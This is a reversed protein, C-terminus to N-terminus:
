KSILSDYFSHYDVPILKKLEQLHGFKSAEIPCPGKYLASHELLVDVRKPRAPLPKWEDQFTVKYNIVGEPVYQYAVVDNVCPDGVKNGPRISNYFPTDFKMFDGFQCYVTEYPRPHRRAAHIIPLYDAPVYVERRKGLKREITAHISDVEMQTHGVELYKQEISVNNRISLELLANSLKANRNQYGCGDSWIIIQKPKRDDIEKQFYKTAISAFVDSDLGGSAEHWVYCVVDKTCLNYYTLNHVKLKTKYYNAAANLRPSLLVAQLDVTYSQIEPVNAASEKDKEKESRSDNKKKIHKQFADEDLSGIKYMNCENCQDKKPTYIDLNMKRVVNLFTKWSASQKNEIRCKETYHRHMDRFSCWTPELYLKSSSSRCYHSEVKPLSNLFNEVNKASTSEQNSSPKELPVAAAGSLSKGELVWLRLAKEGICLTNTFMKKCVHKKEENVGAKVTLYFKLSLKKRSTEADINSRRHQPRVQLVNAAVFTKKAEWSSLNWFLSFIHQRDEESIASCEFKQKPGGKSTSNKTQHGDCRPLLSRKKKQALQQYKGASNKEFGVYDKGELRLQANKQRKWQKCDVQGKRRRKVVTPQADENSSATQEALMEEEPEYLDGSGSSFGDESASENNSESGVERDTEAEVTAHSEKAISTTSSAEDVLSAPMIPVVLVNPEVSEQGFVQVNEAELTMHIDQGSLITGDAVEALTSPVLSSQAEISEDQQLRKQVASETKAAGDLLKLLYKCRTRSTGFM